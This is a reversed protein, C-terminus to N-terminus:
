IRVGKVMKEMVYGEEEEVVKNGIRVGEKMKLNM